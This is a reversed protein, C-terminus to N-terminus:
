ATPPLRRSLEAIADQWTKPMEGHFHEAVGSTSDRRFLKLAADTMVPDIGAAVVTERILSLEDGRDSRTGEFAFSEDPRFEVRQRVTSGERQTISVRSLPEGADDPITLTFYYTAGLSATSRRTSYVSDFDLRPPSVFYVTGDSLEM